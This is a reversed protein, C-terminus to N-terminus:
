KRTNRTVGYIFTPLGEEAMEEVGEDFEGSTVYHINSHTFIVGNHKAM